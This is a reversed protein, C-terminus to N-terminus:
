RGPHRGSRHQPGAPASAGSGTTGLGRRRHAMTAVWARLTGRDGDFRDAQEWVQIFVEQTIDEAASRSGTVRAAIAYVMASFLDYVEVLSAEDGLSLRRGLVRDSVQGPVQDPVQGPSRLVEEVAQM